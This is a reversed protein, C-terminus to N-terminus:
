FKEWGEGTYGCPTKEQCSKCKFGHKLGMIFGGLSYAMAVAGGISFPIALMAMLPHEALYAELTNLFPIM